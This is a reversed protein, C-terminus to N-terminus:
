CGDSQWFTSISNDRLQDVGNGAKASSLTWVALDGIERRQSHGEPAVISGQEQSCVENASMQEGYHPNKEPGFSLEPKLFSSFDSEGIMPEEDISGVSPNSSSEVM